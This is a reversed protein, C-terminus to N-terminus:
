REAAETREAPDKGADEAVRPLAFEFTSGRGEVSRGQIWGGHSDVIRAALALGIGTGESHSRDHLRQFPRFIREAHDPDFGIGNDSVTFVWEGGRAECGVHIRPHAESRFRIANGILNQFLQCLRLPSGRVVPLPDHSIESM